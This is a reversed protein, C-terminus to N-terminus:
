IHGEARDWTITLLQLLLVCLVIQKGSSTDSTSMGEKKKRHVVLKPKLRTPCDNSWSHTPSLSTTVVANSCCFEWPAVAFHTTHTPNEEETATLNIMWLGQVHILFNVPQLISQEKLLTLFPQSHKTVEEHNEKSIPSPIVKLSKLIFPLVKIKFMLLSKRAILEM